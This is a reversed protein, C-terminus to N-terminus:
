KRYLIKKSEEIDEKKISILLRILKKNTEIKINITEWMEENSLPEEGKELRESNKKEEQKTFRYLANRKLKLVYVVNQYLPHISFFYVLFLFYYIITSM